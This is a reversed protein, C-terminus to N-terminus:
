NEKAVEDPKMPTGGAFQVPAAGSSHQSWCSSRRLGYWRKKVRTFMSDIANGVEPELASM